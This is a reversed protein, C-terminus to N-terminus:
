LCDTRAAKTNSALIVTMSWNRGHMQYLQHWPNLIRFHLSSIVSVGTGVAQAPTMRIEKFNPYLVLKCFFQSLVSNGCRHTITASVHQLGLDLLIYSPQELNWQAPPLLPNSIFLNGGSNFGYIEALRSWCQTKAPPFYMNVAGGELPIVDVKWTAGVPPMPNGTPLILILTRNEASSHCVVVGFRAGSLDNAQSDSDYVLVPVELPLKGLEIAVIAANIYNPGPPPYTELPIGVVQYSAQSAPSPPPLHLLPNGPSLKPHAAFIFQKAQTSHHSGFTGPLTINTPCPVYNLKRGRLETVITESDDISLRFPLGQSGEGQPWVIRFYTGATPPRAVFCDDEYTWRLAIIAPTGLPNTAFSTAFSLTLKEAIKAPHFAAIPVTPDGVEGVRITDYGPAGLAAGWNFVYINAHHENTPTRPIELFHRSNMHHETIARLQTPEYNGPPIQVGMTCLGLEMCMPGGGTTCIPIPANVDYGTCTPRAPLGQAEFRPPAICGTQFPFDGAVLRPPLIYCQAAPPHFSLSRLLDTATTNCIKIDVEEKEPACHHAKPPLVDLVLELARPDYSFRLRRLFDMGSFPSDCFAQLCEVLFAPNRFTRTNATTVVLLATMCCTPVLSADTEVETSSVVRTVPVSTFVVPLTASILVLRVTGPPFVSLSGFGLGHPLNVPLTQFVASSVTKRRMVTYPAPLMVVPFGDCAADPGRCPVNPLWTPWPPHSEPGRDIFILTRGELSFISLGVDYCFRSWPEEVTWQNYPFEFSGLVMMQLDYRDKLDLVFNNPEPYAETDRNISNLCLAFETGKQSGGSMTFLILYLKKLIQGHGSLLLRM